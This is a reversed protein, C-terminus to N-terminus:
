GHRNGNIGTNRISKPRTDNIAPFIPNTSATKTSYGERHGIIKAPVGGIISGNPYSQTVVANAGVICGKGLEVGKLIVAGEGIWCYDGIHIPAGVLPQVMVSVDPIFIGHDHDLVTVRSAITVHNGITVCYAAGIYVYSFISCESGIYIHGDYQRGHYDKIASLRLLRGFFTNTGVSINDPNAISDISSIFCGPGVNNFSALADNRKQIEVAADLMNAFTALCRCVIKKAFIRANLRM